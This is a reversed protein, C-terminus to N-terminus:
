ESVVRQLQSNCFFRLIGYAIESSFPFRKFVWIREGLSEKEQINQLGYMILLCVLGVLSELHPSFLSVADTDGGLM